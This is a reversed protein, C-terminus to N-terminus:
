AYKEQECASFWGTTFMGFFGKSPCFPFVELGPDTQSNTEVLPTAMFLIDSDYCFDETERPVCGPLLLHM